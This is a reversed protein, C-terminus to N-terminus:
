FLVGQGAASAKEQAPMGALVFGWAELTKALMSELSDWNYLNLGESEHLVVQRTGEDSRPIQLVCLTADRLNLDRLRIHEHQLSWVVKIDSKRRLNQGIRLDFFPIIVRGNIVFIFGHWFNVWQSGIRLPSMPHDIVEVDNEIQFRRLAAAVTVNARFEDRLNKGRRCHKWIQAEVIHWPTSQPSPLTPYSINLIDPLCKRAPELSYPPRGKLISDLRLVTQDWDSLANRALDTENLRRIKM